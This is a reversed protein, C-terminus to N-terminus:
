IIFVIIITFKRHVLNIGNFCWTHQVLYIVKLVKFISLYFIDLSLLIYPFTTCSFHTPLVSICVCVNISSIYWTYIIYKYLFYINRIYKRFNANHWPYNTSLLEFVLTRGRIELYLCVLLNKYGAQRYKSIPPHVSKLTQFEDINWSFISILNFHKNVKRM